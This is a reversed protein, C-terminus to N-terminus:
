GDGAEPKIDGRVLDSQTKQLSDIQEEVQSLRTSMNSAWWSGSAIIGPLGTVLACFVGILWRRLSRLDSHEMEGM